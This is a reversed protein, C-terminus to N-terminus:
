PNILERSCVARLNKNLVMRGPMFEASWVAYTVLFRMEIQSWYVLRSVSGYVAALVM